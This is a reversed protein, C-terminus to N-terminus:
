EVGFGIAIIAKKVTELEVKTGSKETWSVNGSLLDVKINEVGNIASLAKEVGQKCHNCSMGSVKLNPM